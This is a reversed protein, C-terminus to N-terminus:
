LPPAHDVHGVNALARELSSLERSLAEERALSAALLAEERQLVAQFSSNNNNGNHALPSNHTSSNSGSGSGTNPMTAGRGRGHDNHPTTKDNNTNHRHGSEPHHSTNGDANSNRNNDTNSPHNLSSSSVSRQSGAEITSGRSSRHHHNQQQLHQQSPEQQHHREDSFRPKEGAPHGGGRNPQPPRGQGPRPQSSPPIQPIGAGGVTGTDGSPPQPQPQKGGGGGGGGGLLEADCSGDQRQLLQHYLRLRQSLPPPSSHDWDSERLLKLREALSRSSSPLPGSGDKASEGFRASNSYRAVPEISSPPVPRSGFHPRPSTLATSRYSRPSDQNGVRSTRSELADLRRLLEAPVQVGSKVAAELAEKL